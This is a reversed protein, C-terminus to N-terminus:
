IINEKILIKKVKEVLENITGNNIINYDFDDSGDLALESEHLINGIHTNDNHLDRFVRICIGGRDKIAKLENPFRVDTIIWNPYGNNYREPETVVRLQTENVKEVNYSYGEDPVYEAMTANIWTNPHLQNRFLDTGLEQLVQRITPKILTVSLNTKDFNENELYSVRQSTNFVCWYWWEKGLEQKKFEQDELDARTCGILLCVIDKLKDAFKIVEWKSLSKGLNNSNIFDTLSLHISTNEGTEVKKHWILYQIISAVLDKGSGSKGAIGILNTM